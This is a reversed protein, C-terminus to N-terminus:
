GCSKLFNEDLHCGVHTVHFHAVLNVFVIHQLIHHWTNTCLWSYYLCKAIIHGNNSLIIICYNFLWQKFNSKLSTKTSAFKNTDLGFTILPILVQNNRQHLQTRKCSTWIYYKKLLKNNFINIIAEM